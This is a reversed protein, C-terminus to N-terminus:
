FRVAPGDVDHHRRHALRDGLARDELPRLRRAVGNVSSSGITSTEVSLTSASIGAGVAPVSASIRAWAPSVTWTPSTSARMVAALPARGAGAFVGSGAAGSGRGGSLAGACIGSLTL